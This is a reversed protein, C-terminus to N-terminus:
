LEEKVTEENKDEDTEEEEDLSDDGDEKPKRQCSGDRMHYGAKCVCEHSGPLNKCEQNEGSCLSSDAECENIDACIQLNENLTYGANCETCRAPGSGTCAVCSADCTFCTYSGQTNTCYQNEECPDESCENVDQCGLEENSLWGDKCEDCGKPGGEWCTNKCAIHCVKCVSATDTKSDEYYGDKCENCLDGRYGSNCKCKGTGERTGEGDCAGNGSCPTKEGGPCVECEKGFTNNPCCAKMNEICLFQHLDKDKGQGFIKFWFSEIMEEHEELVSHCEKAADDCLHEIIEVLRVESTAYSGLSKEEWKTNGGGYNSKATASLGKNFNGVIDKCVSCKPMKKKADLCPVVMLLLWFVSLLSFVTQIHVTMMKMM